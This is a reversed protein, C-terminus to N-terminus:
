KINIERARLIGYFRDSYYHYDLVLFLSISPFKQKKLYWFQNVTVLFYDKRDEKKLNKIRFYKKYKEVRDIQIGVAISGGWGPM